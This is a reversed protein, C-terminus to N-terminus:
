NLMYQFAMILGLLTWAIQTKAGSGTSEGCQWRLPALANCKTCQNSEDLGWPSVCQCQATVEGNDLTVDVCQTNIRNDCYNAYNACTLCKQIQCPREQYVEPGSEPCPIETRPTCTRTGVEVGEGCNESCYLWEWEGFIFAGCEGTIIAPGDCENKTANAFTVSDKDCIQQYEQKNDICDGLPVASTYSACKCVTGYAGM